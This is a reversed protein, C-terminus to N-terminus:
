RLGYFLYGPGVRMHHILAEPSVAALLVGGVAQALALPYVNRYRAFAEAFVFGAILTAVTLIPNPLHTASFMTAVLASSVHRNRIVLMLRNHFYSQALYQQIVCWLGYGIFLLLSNWGPRLVGLRHHTFGYFLLPVYLILALPLVFQACPRLGRLSLGLGELTDGRLAHSAMVVAWLALWALPWTHQWRWIYLLIGGFIATVELGAVLAFGTNPEGRPLQEALAIQGM